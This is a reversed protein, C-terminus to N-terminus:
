SSKHGYNLYKNQLNVCNGWKLWGKYSAISKNNRNYKMMKIFKKKISKRLKTYGRYHVYGVFDIGRSSIHFIQYKSLELHLNNNLYSEIEKRLLHLEEKNNGLILLDDCYRQYYKIRKQEKIWHDFKNLYLNAFWQSTFNGLKLGKSSDIITDLLWLLDKDKFKTKLLSKLIENNVSPYFKKVDLKLAYETTNDKLYRRLDLSCKLIGRRKICSYTQSIFYKRFIPELYIMLAHQVVRDKFPLRSIIREKPDKIIFDYYGSVVYTKNSLEDYLKQINIDLNKNWRKVDKRSNKGKSANKSARYLNELSIVKNFLYGVRKM